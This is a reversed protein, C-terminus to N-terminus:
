SNMPSSKRFDLSHAADGSAHVVFQPMQTSFWTFQCHQQVEGPMQLKMATTTTAFACFSGIQHLDRDLEVFETMTLNSVESNSRKAALESKLMVTQCRGVVCSKSEKSKQERVDVDKTEWVFSLQAILQEGFELEM